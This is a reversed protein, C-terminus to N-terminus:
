MLENKTDTYTTTNQVECKAYSNSIMLRKQATITEM